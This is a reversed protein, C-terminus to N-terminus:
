VVLSLLQLKLNGNALIHEYSASLEDARSILDKSPQRRLSHAVITQAHAILALAQERDSSYRTAILIKESPKAELLKRADTIVAANKQFLTEDRVLRHILAPRGSALFLLQNIKQSDRVGLQEIMDRSQKDSLRRIPISQVRSIITPLLRQPDHATLIFRINRGPEELLKLFANQAPINMHDANDIIFVQPKTSKGRTDTILNRIQTIRIAGKQSDDTEGDVNTPSVIGALNTGALHQAVAFLGVGEEGVLLTAHAPHKAVADILERTHPNYILSM